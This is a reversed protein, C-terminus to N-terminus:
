RTECLGHRVDNSQRAREAYEPASLTTFAALNALKALALRRKANLLAAQPNFTSRVLNDQAKASKLFISRNVMRM